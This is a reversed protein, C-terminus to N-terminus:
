RTKMKGLESKLGQKKHCITKNHTISNERTEQKKNSTALYIQAM